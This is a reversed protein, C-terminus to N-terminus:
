PKVTQIDGVMLLDDAFALKFMILDAECGPPGTLFSGYLGYDTDEIDIGRYVIPHADVWEDMAEALKDQRTNDASPGAKWAVMMILYGPHTAHHGTM